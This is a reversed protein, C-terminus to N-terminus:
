RVSVYLTCTSVHIFSSIFHISYIAVISIIWIDAGISLVLVVYNLLLADGSRMSTKLKNLYMYNRQSCYTVLQTIKKFESYFENNEEVHIIMYMYMTGSM